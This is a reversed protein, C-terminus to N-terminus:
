FALTAVVVTCAQAVNDAMLTGAAEGLRRRADSRGAKAVERAASGPATEGEEAVAKAYTSALDSVTTQCSTAENADTLAAFDRLTLGACPRCLSLFRDLTALRVVSKVKKVETEARGGGWVEGRVRARQVGLQGGGM